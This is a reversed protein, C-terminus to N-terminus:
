LPSRSSTAVSRWGGGRTTPRTRDIYSRACLTRLRQSWCLERAPEVREGNAGHILASQPSSDSPLANPFGHSRRVHRADRISFDLGSISHAPGASTPHQRHAPPTGPAPPTRVPQRVPRPWRRSAFTRRGTASTCEAARSAALLLWPGGGRGSRGRDSSRM